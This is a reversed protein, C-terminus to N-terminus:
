YVGTEVIIVGVGGNWAWSRNTLILSCKYIYFYFVLKLIYIDGVGM